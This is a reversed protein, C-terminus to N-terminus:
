ILIKSDVCFRKKPATHGVIKEDKTSYTDHM